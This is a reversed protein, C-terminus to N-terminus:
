AASSNIDGDVRVFGYDCESCYWKTKLGLHLNTAAARYFTQEAECEPCDHELETAM